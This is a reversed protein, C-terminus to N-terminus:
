KIEAGGVFVRDVSIKKNKEDISGILFDARAGARLEGVLGSVGLEAAPNATACVLADTIPIACFAALNEVAALLSLTSGALAGDPTRAIGGRVIAPSGAIDYEGDPSGAAAMSDTILVLRDVGINRYTMAVMEPCVHLGDCILEAYGGSDFAALVAGGDRHHIPPMANYLHTFSIGWRKHAAMATKYDADTHALGLTVGMDRAADAFGDTDLELAASIHMPLGGADVIASLEDKNPAALLHEAHAGRRKPNLYRGELHVGLFAAGGSDTKLNKIDRCARLLDPLEASALTPFLSTTGSLAYSRAMKRMLPVDATNFDGGARGHTHADVLGPILAAGAADLVLDAKADPENLVAEIHEGCVLMAGQVLRKEDTRYILANKILTRM